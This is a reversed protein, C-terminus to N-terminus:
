LGAREQLERLASMADTQNEVGLERWIQGIATSTVQAAVSDSSHGQAWVPRLEELIKEAADGRSKEAEILAATADLLEQIPKVLFSEVKSRAHMLRRQADTM